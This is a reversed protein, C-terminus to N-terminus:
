YVSPEAEPRWRVEEAPGVRDILWNILWDLLQGIFCNFLLGILDGTGYIRLSALLDIKVDM